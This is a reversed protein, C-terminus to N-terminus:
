LAVKLVATEIFGFITKATVIVWELSVHRGVAWPEEWGTRSPTFRLITALVQPRLWAM